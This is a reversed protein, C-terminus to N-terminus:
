IKSAISFILIIERMLSFTEERCFNPGYYNFLNVKLLNITTQIDNEEKEYNNTYEDLRAVYQDLVTQWEFFKGRYVDSDSSM